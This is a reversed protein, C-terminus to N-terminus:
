PNKEGPTAPARKAVVMAMLIWITFDMFSLDGLAAFVFLGVLATVAGVYYLSSGRVRRGAINTWASRCVIWLLVLLGAEAFVGGYMWVLLFPNHVTVQPEHPTSYYFERAYNFGIGLPHALAVGAYYRWISLREDEGPALLIPTNQGSAAGSKAAPTSHVPADASQQAEEAGLSDQTTRGTSGATSQLGRGADTGCPDIPRRTAIAHSTPGVGGTPVTAPTALVPAEGAHFRAVVAQRVDPPLCLWALLVLAIALAGSPVYRWRVQRWYSSTAVAGVVLSAAIAIVGGRAQTWLAFYILAGAYILSAASATARRRELSNLCLVWVFALAVCANVFFQLPDSTLGQFREGWSFLAHNGTCRFTAFRALPGAVFLVGAALPILPSVFLAMAVNRYLRDNDKTLSYVTVFLGVTLVTKTLNAVGTLDFGLGRLHLSFGTAALSAALYLALALYLTLDERPSEIRRHRMVSRIGLAIAGIVVFLFVFDSRYQLSRLTFVRQTTVPTFYVLSAAGIVLGWGVARELLKALMLTETATDDCAEGSDNTCVNPEYRELNRGGQLQLLETDM